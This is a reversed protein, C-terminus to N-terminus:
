GCTKCIGSARVDISRADFDVGSRLQGRLEDVLAADHHTVGGCVTCVLHIVADDHSREWTATAQDGLHSARVLDLEDFLALTRYVSSVNIGPDREAAQDAIEQANLHGHNTALVDWVVQRPRTLRYGSSRLAEELDMEVAYSRGLLPAM